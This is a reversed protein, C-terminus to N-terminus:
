KWSMEYNPNHELKGQSYVDIETMLWKVTVTVIPQKACSSSIKAIQSFYLTSLPQNQKM